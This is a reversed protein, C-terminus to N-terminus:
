KAPAEKDGYTELIRQPIMKAIRDQQEETCDALRCRYLRRAENERIASYTNVITNQVTYFADYSSQRSVALKVIHQRGAHAVLAALRRAIEGTTAPQGDLTISDSANIGVTIMTGKPVESEVVQETTPKKPPLQRAIGRDIDMSTTVLFLILLMFSIDATSTTNLGPVEHSHNRFRFAM